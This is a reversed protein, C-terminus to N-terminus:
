HRFRDSVIELVQNLSYWYRMPSSTDHFWPATPDSYQIVGLMLLVISTWIVSNTRMHSCKITHHRFIYMYIFTTIVSYIFYREKVKLWWIWKRCSERRVNLDFFRVTNFQRWGYYTLSLEVTSNWEWALSSTIWQNHKLGGWFFSKVFTGMKNRNMSGVPFLAAQKCAHIHLDTCADGHRNVALWGSWLKTIM